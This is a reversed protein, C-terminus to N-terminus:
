GGAGGAAGMEPTRAPAIVKGAFTVGDSRWFGTKYELRKHDTKM